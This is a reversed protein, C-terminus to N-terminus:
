GPQPFTNLSMKFISTSLGNGSPHSFAQHAEPTVHMDDGMRLVLSHLWFLKNIM